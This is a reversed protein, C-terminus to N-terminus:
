GSGLLALRWVAVLLWAVTGTALSPQLAVICRQALALTLWARRCRVSRAELSGSGIALFPVQRSGGSVGGLHHRSRLWQRLYGFM